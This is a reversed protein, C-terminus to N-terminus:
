ARKRALRGNPGGATLRDAPTGNDKLLVDQDRGFRALLPLCAGGIARAGGGISGESLTVPSLGQRDIRALRATTREVIRARVAAPCSGDIIVAEFDLVSIAATVALALSQAVEEIWEDLLAGIDAWEHPSRWLMSADRGAARLKKELVWISACDILQRTAPAGDGGPKAIPMSGIAGANGTRGPHLSGNLVLGGGIFSGIFVYLYDCYRAGEGLTLEAACAATADNCLSVPWPSLAGIERLIDFERWQDLVGAPAGVEEAWNWLEFPAAVGLGVIRGLRGAPLMASLAPIGERVFALVAAPTPYSHTLRREGRVTGLFDLLVIDSSRRGIKLGLAFAGEPDLTFPVSPQGVRGRQPGGKLVLGDAELQRIIVSATQASLGTLRAIEAKPVSGHRRILSLVLRENYLRTGSQSTGRSFDAFRPAGNSPVEIDDNM